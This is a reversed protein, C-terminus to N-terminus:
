SISFKVSKELNIQVKEEGVESMKEVWFVTSEEPNKNYKELFELQAKTAREVDNIIRRTVKQAVDVIEDSCPMNKHKFFFTIFDKDGQYFNCLTLLNTPIRHKKCIDTIEDRNYGALNKVNNLLVEANPFCGATLGVGSDIYYQTYMIITDLFNYDPFINQYEDFLKKRYEDETILENPLSFNPYFIKKKM